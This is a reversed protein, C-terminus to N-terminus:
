NMYDGTQRVLAFDQAENGPQHLSFHPCGDKWYFRLECDDPLGCLLVMIASQLYEFNAQDDMDHKKM